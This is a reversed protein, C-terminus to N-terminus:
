NTFTPKFPSDIAVQRGAKDRLGMAIECSENRAANQRGEQEAKGLAETKSNSRFNQGSVFEVPISIRTIVPHGDLEEPRYSGSKLWAEISQRYLRQYAKSGSEFQLDDISATGDPLVRFQVKVRASHGRMMASTPFIPYRDGDHAPGNGRYKIAFRYQGDVPAACADLSAYTVGAVPRGDRIPPSFRWRKASNEIASRVAAPLAADAGVAVVQGASDVDLKVKTNFLLMKPEEDKGAAFATSALLCLLLVTQATVRSAISM